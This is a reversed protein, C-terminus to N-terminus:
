KTPTTLKRLLIAQHAPPMARILRAVVDVFDIPRYLATRVLHALVSRRTIRYVGGPGNQHAELEGSEVLEYVATKEIRLISCVEDIRLLPRGVPILWEFEAQQADTIEAM